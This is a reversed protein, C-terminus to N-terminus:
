SYMASSISACILFMQVCRPTSSGSMYVSNPLKVTPSLPAVKYLMRSWFCCFSRSSHYIISELKMVVSGSVQPMLWRKMMSGM